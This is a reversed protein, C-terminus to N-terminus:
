TSEIEEKAIETVTMPRKQKRWFYRVAFFGPLGIFIAFPLVGVVFTVLGLIFNLALDFGLGFSEGLRYSFGASNSSFVAATQIRLKITSLSAQNQLFRMRGEIREIEGRVDALQGQVSLADDVTNARKMIEMFQQELARKAKLRAEIDIFEETVDEGKVTESIVRGSAARIESLTETFRDSPVRLTM